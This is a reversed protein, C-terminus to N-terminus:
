RTRRPALHFLAMGIAAIVVATFLLGLSNFGTAALTSGGAVTAGTTKTYM